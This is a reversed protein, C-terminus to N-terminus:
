HWVHINTHFIMTTTVILWFSFTHVVIFTLCACVPTCPGFCNYEQVGIEWVSWIMLCLNGSLGKYFQKEKKSKAVLDM